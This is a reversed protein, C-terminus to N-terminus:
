AEFKGHFKNECLHEMHMPGSIGVNWLWKEEMTRMMFYRHQTHMKRNKVLRVLSMELRCYKADALIIVYFNSGYWMKVAECSSEVMGFLLRDDEM